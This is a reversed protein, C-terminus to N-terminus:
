YCVKVWKVVPVTKKVPVQIHRYRIETAQYPHGCEDYKTVCVEYAVCRTEYETVTQYCTVKKYYHGGAFAPTAVTTLAVAAIAATLLRRFMTTDKRPQIRRTVGAM